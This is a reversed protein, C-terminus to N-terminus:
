RNLMVEFVPHLGTYLGDCLPTCDDLFAASAASLLYIVWGIM